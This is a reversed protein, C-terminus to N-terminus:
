TCMSPLTKAGDVAVPCDYLIDASSLAAISVDKL